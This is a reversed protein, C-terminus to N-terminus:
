FLDTECTVSRSSFILKALLQDVLFSLIQICHISSHGLAGFSFGIAASGHAAALLTRFVPDSLCSRDPTALSADFSLTTTGHCV